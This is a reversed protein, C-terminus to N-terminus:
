PMKQHMDDVKGSFFIKKKHLRCQDPEWIEDSSTHGGSISWICHPCHSKGSEWGARKPFFGNPLMVERSWHGLRLCFQNARQGRGKYGHPQNNWHLSRLWRLGFLSCIASGAAGSPQHVTQILCSSSWHQPQHFRSLSYRLFAGGGGHFDFSSLSGAIFMNLISRTNKKKPPPNAICLYIVSVHNGEYITEPGGSPLYLGSWWQFLWFKVSGFFAIRYIWITWTSFFFVTSLKRLLSKQGVRSTEPHIGWPQIDPHWFVHGSFFVDFQKSRFGTAFLGLLFRWIWDLNM